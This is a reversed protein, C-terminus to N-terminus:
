YNSRQELGYEDSNTEVGSPAMTSRQTESGHEVVEMHITVCRLGHEGHPTPHWGHNQPSNTHNRGRTAPRHHNHTGDQEQTTTTERSPQTTKTGGIYRGTAPRMNTNGSM